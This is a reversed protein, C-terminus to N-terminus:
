RFLFLNRLFDYIPEFCTIVILLFLVIVIATRFESPIAIKKRIKKENKSQYANEYVVKNTVTNNVIQSNQEIIESTNNNNISTSENIPESNITSVDATSNLSNIYNGIDDGSNINNVNTVPASVNNSATVNTNSNLENNTGDNIPASNGELINSTTVSNVNIDPNGIVTNLNKVAKYPVSSNVDNNYMNDDNM